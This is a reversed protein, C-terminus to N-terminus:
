QALILSVLETVDSANLAGDANIDGNDATGGSLIFNVLATVDEVNVCGDGNVDGKLGGAGIQDTIDNVLFKGASNTGAIEYYVDQSIPGIDVTQADSSGQDFIINFTYTPTSIDFSKYYYTNGEVVKTDTVANGPWSGNLTGNTDWAYFHVSSWQPDKLYVTATHAEFSEITYDRTIAGSVQGDQLLAAKLTCSNGIHVTGGSAVSASQATPDSGDTTYVLTADEPAVATLTVDFDSYYTGSPKSAWASGIARQLWYSYNTGSLVQVYTSASPTYGDGGMVVLLYGNAGTTRQAYYASASRMNFTASTNTIGALQRAYIMQKIEEKYDQWHKLFVCPTGPMALLYANAAAINQTIPDNTNNADRYQTDHNEVFTVAFQKYAATTNLGGTKLASWNNSTNVADRVTYRFTFDFAASSIVSDADKTGDLWNELKTINGDWYEGVSFEPQAADNYIRTFEASYGKTMDYRVGAYGLDNLLFKLYANTITQVNQSKHDLDRMGEWAEGTDYNDSLSIGKSAAWTATQGGDDDKVVDTSLLQYTVGNYTEAPFDTWSGDVGLNNHHNLVVDEITGIGKSKFTSIMSRLQAETGFSSNHSFFYVPAYGMQNGTSHCDGSQPVWVLSFFQSLESAQSELNQWQSDTYSDWYFGQLMVGGYNAPWGVHAQAGVGAALAALAVACRKCLQSITM